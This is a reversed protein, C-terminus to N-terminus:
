ADHFNESGWFLFEHISARPFAKKKTHRVLSDRVLGVLDGCLNSPFELVQQSNWLGGGGGPFLFRPVLEVIHHHAIQQSQPLTDSTPDRGDSSVEIQSAAGM